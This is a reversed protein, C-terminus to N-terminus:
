RLEIDPLISQPKFNVEYFDTSVNAGRVQEMFWSVNDSLGLMHKKMGDDTKCTVDLKDGAGDPSVSCYGKIELLYKDTIGNFFVIRRPIEFNDAQKSLNESAVDADSSCGVLGVALAAGAVATAILKKM